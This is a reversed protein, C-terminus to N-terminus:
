VEGKETILASSLESFEDTASVIIEPECCCEDGCNICRIVLPHDKCCGGGVLEIEVAGCEPCAEVKSTEGTLAGKPYTM